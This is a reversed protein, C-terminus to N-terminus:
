IGESERERDREEQKEKLLRARVGDDYWNPRYVYYTGTVPAGMQEGREITFSLAIQHVDLLSTPFIEVDWRARVSDAAAAEEDDSKPTKRVHAAFELEGGEELVDRDTIALVQRRVWEIRMPEPDRRNVRQLAHRANLAAQCLAIAALAFLSLAVITEPLTFGHCKLKM